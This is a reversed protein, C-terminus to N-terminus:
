RVVMYEGNRGPGVNYVTLGYGGEAAKGSIPHGLNSFVDFRSGCRPCEAEGDENISVRTDAKCEVPCAMDYAVPEGIYTTCLLIGGYGTFSQATYPFDSPIKKERIFRKHQGAGSVGYIEWDSATWFVLNVNALPLRNNDIYHCASISIIMFLAVVIRSLLSIHRM